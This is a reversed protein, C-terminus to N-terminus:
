HCYPCPSYGQEQAETCSLIRYNTGDFRDCDCHHYYRTGDLVIFAVNREVFDSIEQLEKLEANVTQLEGRLITLSNEATRLEGLYDRNLQNLRLNETQLLEVAEDVKESQAARYGALEQESVTIEDARQLLENVLSQNRSQENELETQVQTLQESLSDYQEQLAAARAKETMWAEYHLAAYAGASLLLACLLTLLIVAVVLGKPHGTRMKESQRKETPPTPEPAATKGRTPLIVRDSLYESTQLPLRVTKLCEECFLAGEEVKRGCRM